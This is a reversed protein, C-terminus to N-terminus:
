SIYAVLMLHLMTYTKSHDGVPPDSRSRNIAALRRTIGVTEPRIILLNFLIVIMDSDGGEHGSSWEGYLTLMAVQCL